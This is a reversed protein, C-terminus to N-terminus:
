VAFRQHGRTLADAIIERGAADLSEDDGDINLRVIWISTDGEVESVAGWNERGGIPGGSILYGYVVGSFVIERVPVTGESLPLKRVADRLEFDVEQSITFALERPDTATTTM